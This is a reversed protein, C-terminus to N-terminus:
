LQVHSTSYICTHLNYPNRDTLVHLTHVCTSGGPEWAPHSTHGLGGRAGGADELGLQGM